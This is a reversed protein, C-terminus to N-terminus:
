YHLTMDDNCDAPLEPSPFREYAVKAYDVATGGANEVVLQQELEARSARAVHLARQYQRLNYELAAKAAFPNYCGGDADNWMDEPDDGLGHEPGKQVTNKIEQLLSHFDSFASRTEGHNANIKDNLEVMGSQLENLKVGHESVVSEIAVFRADEQTTSSVTSTGQVVTAPPGFSQARQEVVQVKHSPSSVPTAGEVTLDIADKATGTAVSGHMRKKLFPQVTGFDPLKQMVEEAYAISIASPIDMVNKKIHGDRYKRWPDSFGLAAQRTRFVRCHDEEFVLAKLMDALTKQRYTWATLNSEDMTLLIKPDDPSIRDVSRFLKGDVATISLLLDEVTTQITTDTRLRVMNSPDQLGRCTVTLESRLFALQGAIYSRRAPHDIPLSRIPLFFSGRMSSPLRPNKGTLISQCLNIVTDLDERNCEVCWAPAKDTSSDSQKGYVTSVRIYLEPRGAREYEPTSKIGNEADPKCATLPMRIIFGASVTMASRDTRNVEHNHSAAWDKMAALFDQEEVTIGFTLYGSIISHHQRKGSYKDQFYQFLLCSRIENDSRLVPLPESVIPCLVVNKDFRKAISWLKVIRETKAYHKTFGGISVELKVHKIAKPSSTPLRSYDPPSMQALEPPLQALGLLIELDEIGATVVASPSVRPYSGYGQSLGIPQPVQESGTHVETVNMPETGGIDASVARALDTPDESMNNQAIAEDGPHLPDFYNSSKNSQESKHSTQLQQAVSPFAKLRRPIPLWVITEQPYRIKRLMASLTLCRQEYKATTRGDTNDHLIIQLPQDQRWRTSSSINTFITNSIETTKGPAPPRYHGTNQLTTWAADNRKPMLKPPAENKYAGILRTKTDSTLRTEPTEDIHPITINCRAARVSKTGEIKDQLRNKEDYLSRQEDLKSRINLEIENIRENHHKLWPYQNVLRRLDTVTSDLLAADQSRFLV